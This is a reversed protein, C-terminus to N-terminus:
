RAAPEYGWHKLYPALIAEAEAFHAAYHRWRGISRTYVPEVVQSYSPTSIFGRSKAHDAFALVNDNWPLQLFEMLRRAHTETDSVLDEYRLELHRPKFIASQQQWFDMVKAYMAASAPLSSNCLAFAASRFSQMVCSLCADRPDRLTLVISANPFLRSILPLRTLNLPNKDVLRQGPQLPAIHKNAERWYQSRLEALRAADLEGLQSARQINWQRLQPRLGQFIPREDMAVLGPHADLMQELMTTGSRPYGVVFIPSAEAAPGEVSAWAAAIEAPVRENDDALLDSGDFLEPHSSQLEVRRAAHADTFAQFAAEYQGQKDLVKGLSFLLSARQKPKHETQLLQNHLSVAEDLQSTRSALRARALVLRPNALQQPGLMAAGLVRRAEDLRNARELLLVHSAVVEPEHRLAPLCHTIIHEASDMRGLEILIMVVEGLLAPDELRTWDRADLLAAIPAFDSIDAHCRALSVRVEDDQPALKLAEQYLERARRFQGAEHLCSAYPALVDLPNGPLQYARELAKLANDIDGNQRRANGLNIWHAPQEPERACCHEFLSIADAYRGQASLALGLLMSAFTHGPSVQLAERALRDTAGPNGAMLQDYADQLLQM